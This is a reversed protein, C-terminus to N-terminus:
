VGPHTILGKSTSPPPANVLFPRAPPLIDSLAPSQPNLTERSSIHISLESSRCHRYSAAMSGQMPVRGGCVGVRSGYTWIFEKKWLSSQDHLKIVALLFIVLLGDLRFVFGLHDKQFKTIHTQM